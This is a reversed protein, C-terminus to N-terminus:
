EDRKLNDGKTRMQKWSIEDSYISGLFGLGKLMEPYLSHHLLMTDDQCMTPRFGMTLLHTLDFIGNQFVKPVPKKLARDILRLAQMEHEVTPWYNWNPKNEDVIPIVLADRESRAFAIMAIQKRFKTEIDVAYYDAPLDIWDEIERLTPEVTLWREIRKVTPFEAERKAKELDTLVIPRLNWQRLVAAPHYTPIVKMGLRPSTKVTGRIVSIKSEGLIAWCATNGLAIVLNPKWEELRQWLEKVSTLMDPRLYKGPRLPPLDAVGDKYTTFCLDIKNDFPRFNFVNTIEIEHTERIDRWYRIMELESPYQIALEPALGAQALMRALEAGSRGVLPHAFLEEREGWAEGCLVIKAV